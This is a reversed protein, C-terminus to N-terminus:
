TEIEFWNNIDTRAHPSAQASQRAHNYAEEAMPGLQPVANLPYRPWERYILVEENSVSYDIPKGPLSQRVVQQIATGKDGEPGALICIEQVVPRHTRMLPAADEHIQRVARLASDSGHFRSFFMSAVNMNGLRSGLFSRAQEEVIEHLNGLMNISSMCVSFLNNYSQEIQKQLTKDLFRLEDPSINSRLAEVAQAVSSCGIPFLLTDQQQIPEEPMNHFRTALDELRQQCFLFERDLDSLQVRLSMYIRCLQRMVLSQVRWKPFQALAESIELPSPKRRGRESTLFTHIVYYGDNAKRAFDLAIPEYHGQLQLLIGQLQEIAEKAGTLRYDPHELLLRPLRMLKPALDRIQDNASEHLTNEIKGVQRQMSNEDPMGVIQLLRSFTQWLRTPDPDRAFWGRPVYPNAEAQFIQDIPQGVLKDCAKMMAAIIPEPTLQEANWREKLWTRVPERIAALDNSLWRGVLTEGLWRTAKSLIAQKPWILASQNIVNVSITKSRQPTDFEERASELVRGLPTLIERRIIEAAKRIIPDESKPEGPKPLDNMLPLLTFRSFPAAPDNLHGDRHDFLASYVTEPLSFHHLEKLAAFSNAIAQSKVNNRDPSPSLLIGIVEPHRYGLQKALHRATYAVDIFMGSGTGGAIGAVVYIRPRNSRIGLRTVRDANDLTENLVCTELHNRLKESFAAFFDCFALRGLCRQGLTQPNRPIRYLVQPDLWGEIISRGNRRPKLYHSARNLRMPLVQDPALPAASQHTAAAQLYEQDTDLCLLRLHGLRDFTGFREVISRRLQRVVDVGLQGLGIIVAPVLCGTGTREPPPEVAPPVAEFVGSTGSEDRRNRLETKPTEPPPEAAPFSAPIPQPYSPATTYKGHPTEMRLQAPAAKDEPMVGGLYDTSVQHLARVFQLCTPYRDEPKKALARGVVTRDSPPLPALNPIGQIHQVLLQQSNSGNFPRVGTLLEQYVIALSYQDCFRTAIGDFTEPAAYVPTVGGTITARMGELDKVLGFDAVKVHTHMLFLNQPKIDLHQLAYQNNMLDLVEAAEELYGILEDHPIGVLGQGRCERFRDWLNCDALEMVILLRGEIIDYRELSLLYPHRIAQVRKLARLEQEAHRAGDIETTRLDGHIIKVAKQLGGPAEVRWVEGFGGGGIREILRYGSIIEAQSEILLSM